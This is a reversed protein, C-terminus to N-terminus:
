QSLWQQLKFDDANKSPKDIFVFLNIVHGFPNDL